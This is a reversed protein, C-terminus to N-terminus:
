NTEMAKAAAILSVVAGGLGGFIAAVASGFALWGALVGGTAGVVGAAVIKFVTAAESPRLASRTETETDSVDTAM